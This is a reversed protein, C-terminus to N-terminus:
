RKQFHLNEDSNVGNQESVLVLSLEKADGLTRNGPQAVFGSKHNPFNGGVLGTQAKYIRAPVVVDKTGSFLGFFGTKEKRIQDGRQDFLVVNQSADVSDPYKLLELRKIEGGITDIEAKVVDTTITITESKVETSAAAANAPAATTAASASAAGAVASASATKAQQSPTAPSFMSQKGNHRMWNDWLLLLSMSFIVWLVTRKIDM